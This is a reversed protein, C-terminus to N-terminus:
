DWVTELSAHHHISTSTCGGPSAKTTVVAGVVGCTSPIMQRYIPTAWRLAPSGRRIVNSACHYM